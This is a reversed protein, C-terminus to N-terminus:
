ESTDATAGVSFQPHPIAVPIIPQYNKPLGKKTMETGYYRMCPKRNILNGGIIIVVGMQEVKISHYHDTIVDGIKIPNNEHAFRSELQQRDKEYREQIEQEKLRFEELTM